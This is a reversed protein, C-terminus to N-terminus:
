QIANVVFHPLLSWFDNLWTLRVKLPWELSVAMKWQLFSHGSLAHNATHFESKELHYLM